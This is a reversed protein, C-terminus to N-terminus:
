KHVKVVAGSKRSLESALAILHSEVSSELSTGSVAGNAIINYFDDVLRSDGGGHGLTDNNKVLEDVSYEIPADGFRYVALTKASDDFVIEGLSGHFTMKRGMKGTFATMTLTVKVGNEFCMEVSQNDVVNNDCAFVCRGYPGNQYGSRLGEETNTLSLDVVNFPWSNAPCGRAKWREVYLREASYPCENIYKCDACRDSAGEPQNAKNFFSLDGVSYVSDCKAGVYYQLLDFDHCCKQMIMPSTEEDNRWNGRVFSHAQHWYGVQEISEIRILKGIIGSNLLEKIKLFAPAYRLVHCVVVEGGYKKQAELLSYLEEELPSIPKELLVDYGLELARTCMRVHDRDQTALVLVDARKEKFFENEDLYLNEDPINWLTQANKLKIPNNDCLSVLEFKDTRKNMCDGYILGRSGCGIVAVTFKKMEKDRGKDKKLKVM